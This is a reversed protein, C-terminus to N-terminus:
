SRSQDAMQAPPLHSGLLWDEEPECFAAAGTASALAGSLEAPLEVGALVAAELGVADVPEGELEPELKPELEPEPEPEAM